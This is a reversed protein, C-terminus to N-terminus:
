SEKPAGVRAGGMRVPRYIPFLFKKPPAAREGGAPTSAWDEASYRPGRALELGRMLDRTRAHFHEPPKKFDGTHKFAEGPCYFCVDSGGCSNCAGRNKNTFALIAQRQPSHDWIERLTNQRLHGLEMPFMVCPWVAGDPAIYLYTRGAGCPGKNPHEAARPVFDLPGAKVKWILERARIRQDSTLELLDLAERALHDRYINTGFDCTMGRADFYAAIAPIEEVTQAQVVVDAHTALGAARAAAMGALSAALSGPRRTFADHIAPNLSYISVKVKTVCLRALEEAMAPTMGGAHTRVNSNFGRSHAYALLELLDKRLLTEGGSWGLNWIGIEALQDLVRLWEQTTLEPWTDRNDLYCHQCDLDCRYTVDLQADNPCGSREYAQQMAAYLAERNDSQSLPPDISDM